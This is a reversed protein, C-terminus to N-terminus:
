SLRSASPSLFNRNASSSLSSTTFMRHVSILMRDTHGRYAGRVPPPVVIVIVTRFWRINDSFLVTVTATAPRRQSSGTVYSSRVIVQEKGCDDTVAAAAEPGTSTTYADEDDDARDDCFILNASLDESVIPKTSGSVVLTRGIQPDMESPIVNVTCPRNRSIPLAARTDTTALTLSASTPSVTSIVHSM